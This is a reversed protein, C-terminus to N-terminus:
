YAGGGGDKTSSEQFATYCFVGVLDININVFILILILFSDLKFIKNIKM